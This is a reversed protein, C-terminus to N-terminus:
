VIRNKDMGCMVQPVIQSFPSHPIYFASHCIPIAAYLHANIRRQLFKLRFDLDAPLLNADHAHRRALRVLSADPKLVLHVRPPPGHHLASAAGIRAEKGRAHRVGAIGDLREGVFIEVPEGM